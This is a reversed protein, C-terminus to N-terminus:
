RRSERDATNWRLPYRRTGTVGGQGGGSVGGKLERRADACWELYAQYVRVGFMATLHYYRHADDQDLVAELNKVGAQLYALEDKIKAEFREIHGVTIAPGAASGFFLKLLTEYRLEDKDVPQMLWTALAQRGDDTIAYRVKGRDASDPDSRDALGGEVLERLTPYISGYSAGWFFRLTSDIRQKIQYGTLLEHSLLGLIVYDLKRENAV